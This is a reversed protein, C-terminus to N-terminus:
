IALFFSLALIALILVNKQSCLTDGASLAFTGLHVKGQLLYIGPGQLLFGTLVTLPMMKSTTVDSVFRQGPSQEGNTRARSEM